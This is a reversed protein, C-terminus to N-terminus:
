TDCRPPTTSRPWPTETHPAPTLRPSSRGGVWYADAQIAKRPHRGWPDAQDEEAKVRAHVERPGRHELSAVAGNVGALLREGESPPACRKGPLINTGSRPRDTPSAVTGGSHPSAQNIAPSGSAEPLSM